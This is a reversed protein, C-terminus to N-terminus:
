MCINIKKYRVMEGKNVVFRDSGHPMINQVYVTPESMLDYEDVINRIGDSTLICISNNKLEELAVKDGLYMIFGGKNKTHFREKM